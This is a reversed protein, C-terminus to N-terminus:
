LRIIICKLIKYTPNSLCFLLLTFTISLHNMDRYAKIMIPQVVVFHRSCIRTHETIGDKTLNLVGLWKEKKNISFSVSVEEDKGKTYGSILCTNPM